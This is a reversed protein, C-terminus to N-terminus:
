KKGRTRIGKIGYYRAFAVNIWENEDSTLAPNQLHRGSAWNLKTSGKKYEPVELIEKSNSQKYISIMDVLEKDYQWVLYTGWYTCFLTIAFICTGILALKKKIFIDIFDKKLITQIRVILSASITIFVLSAFGSRLPFDPAFIMIINVLISLVCFLKSLNCLKIVLENKYNKEKQIKILSTLIFFWLVLQYDEIIGFTLLRTKIHEWSFVKLWDNMYYNTIYYNTRVANGPAFILLVYGALLGIYGWIMWEKLQNNKFLQIFWLGLFLLLWCITNENGWGACIGLLFFGCKAGSFNLFASETQFYSQIFPLLFFLLIVLSWLYNCAGALWLYVEYFGANFIWLIFFICCISDARLNKLSIKGADSIWHIQLILVVFALANFINFLWKGQWVFFQVLLHAITRGNGTFYHRWQSIIVDQISSIRVVNEPLPINMFQNPWIFAYVLDDGYYLPTLFNLGLMVLYIFLLIIISKKPM